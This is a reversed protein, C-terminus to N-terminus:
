RGSQPCFCVNTWLSLVGLSPRENKALKPTRFTFEYGGYLRIRDGNWKTNFIEAEELTVPDSM